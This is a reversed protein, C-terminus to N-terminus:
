FFLVYFRFYIIVLGIIAVWMGFYISKDWKWIKAGDFIWGPIMNFGAIFLNVIVIITIFWILTGNAIVIFSILTFIAVILINIGPGAASLKGNEETSPNGRIYVAGPGVILFGLMAAIVLGLLLYQLNYRFEAWYGYKQALFKHGMEHCLFALLVAVLSIPLDLLFDMPFALAGGIGNSFLFAFALTLIVIAVILHQIETNSFKGVDGSSSYPKFPSERYDDM